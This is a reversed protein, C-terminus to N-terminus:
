GKAAAAPKIGILTIKPADKGQADKGVIVDFECLVPIGGVPFSHALHAWKDFESADGFRYPVTVTGIAKQEGTQGFEAPLYFTTFSYKNGDVEGKAAKIGFLTSTSQMKM